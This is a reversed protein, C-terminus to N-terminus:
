NPGCIGATLAVFLATISEWIEFVFAMKNLEREQVASNTKCDLFMFFLM